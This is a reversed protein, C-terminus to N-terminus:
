HKSAHTFKGSIRNNIDWSSILKTIIRVFLRLMYFM